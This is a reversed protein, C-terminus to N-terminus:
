RVARGRRAMLACALLAVIAQGGSALPAGCGGSSESEVPLPPDLPDTPDYGNMVEWGDLHGDGDSDATGITTGYTGELSDALDDDDTDVGFLVDIVHDGAVNAFTYSLCLSVDSGDVQVNEVAYGTAPTMTFTQSQGELVTVAGSPSVVGNSGASSTITRELAFTAVLAADNAANFTYSASSSVISAGVRWDLFGYGAAPTATVTVSTGHTFTGDGATTGGAVPNSSTTIDYEKLQFTAVLGTDETVAFNYNTNTSVPSSSVQWDVFEYGVSPTAYASCTAGESYTGAGTAVGGAAPLSAVTVTYERIFNADLDRHATVTFTYTANTSVITSGDTWNLFQYGTNPTATVTCSGSVAYTDTGTTTGGEAPVPSALVYYGTTLQAQIYYVDREIMFTVTLEESLLIVNEAAIVDAWLQFRYGMAPAATLTCEEGMAYTGDGVITAAGPPEVAVTVMAGRAGHCLVIGLAAM